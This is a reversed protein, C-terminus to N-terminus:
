SAIRVNTETPAYDSSVAWATSATLKFDLTFAHGARLMNENVHLMFLEREFDTPYFL